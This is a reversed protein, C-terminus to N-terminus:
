QTSAQLVPDVALVCPAAGFAARSSQRLYLILTHNSRCTAIWAVEFLTPSHEVANPSGPAELWLFKM